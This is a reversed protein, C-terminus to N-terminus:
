DNKMKIPALNDTTGPPFDSENNASGAMASEMPLRIVFCAGFGPASQLWMQGGHEVIAERSAALGLGLGNTKGATVFPQFLRDRIEPAVGPGTDRVEILISTEVPVASLHIAGGAPMAELTNAFLNDLVCEVRARDLVLAVIDAVHHAIVVSQSEAAARIRNLCASVLDRLNCRERRGSKWRCLDVFHQLLNQSQLSAQYM